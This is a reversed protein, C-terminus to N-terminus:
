FVCRVNVDSVNVESRFTTDTCTPSGGRNSSTNHELREDFLSLYEQVSIGGFHLRPMMM